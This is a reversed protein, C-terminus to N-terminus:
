YLSKMVLMIGTGNGHAKDASEQVPEVNIQVDPYKKKLMRHAERAM